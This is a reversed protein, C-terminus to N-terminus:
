KACRAQLDAPANKGFRALVDLENARVKDEGWLRVQEARVEDATISQIVTQNTNM